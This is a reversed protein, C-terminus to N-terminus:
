WGGGGKLGGLGLGGLGLGLGGLTKPPKPNPDAGLYIGSLLLHFKYAYITGDEQSM